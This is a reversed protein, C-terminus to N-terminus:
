WACKCAPSFHIRTEPLLSQIYDQNEQSILINRLDMERLNKLNSLSEPFYELENDWMDLYELKELEGFSYPIRAIKNQNTNLYKLHKLKGITNPLADLDNKNVILMQLQTLKIISDPLQKLKNKGLDLYQLNKLQYIAEPLEKLNKKRLSLRIVQNPNECAAALDTYEPQMMLALSDLLLGQGQSKQVFFFLTLIFLFRKM